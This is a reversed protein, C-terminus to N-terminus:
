KDLAKLAQELSSYKPQHKQVKDLWEHAQKSDGILGFYVGCAFTYNAWRNQEGADSLNEERMKYLLGGAQKLSADDGRMLLLDALALTLMFDDPERELGKRVIKEAKDLRHLDEYVKALLLRNSASDEHKLRQRCLKALERHKEADVLSLSLLKWPIIRSPALEISRRASKEAAAWDNFIMGQFFGLVEAAEAAKHENPDQLGKKLLVTDARLRKRTTESVIEILKEPLKASPDRAQRDHIDAMAEMMAIMGLGMYEQRDLDVAKRLDPIAERGLISEVFDFKEGQYLRLGCDLYGYLFGFAGRLRYVQSERPALTVARDFCAVAERRHRRSSAIQEPTTQVTRMLKLLAEPGAPHFPKGGAIVRWCKSDLIEGLALWARWNDPCEKVVGRVLTEAEEMEEVYELADALRLRCAPDDPHQELQKRFLSVAKRYAQKGKAPQKARYYLKALRGYREADTADGKLEKEIEAIKAPQPPTESFNSFNGRPSVGYAVIISIKPLHMARRLEVKDVAGADSAAVLLAFLAFIAFRPNNM